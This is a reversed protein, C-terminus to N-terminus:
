AAIGPGNFLANDVVEGEIKSAQNLAWWDPPANGRWTAFRAKEYIYYDRYAAVPDGPKKYKDPMAQAFSTLGKAPMVSPPELVEELRVGSLHRKGYRKTYEVDLAQGLEVLWAYNEKSEAAWIACPHKKHTPKYPAYEGHLHKATSLLQVTELLMKVVHKDCHQQAAKRPDLDLVFINM